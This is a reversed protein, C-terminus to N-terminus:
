ESFGKGHNKGGCACECNHGMAFICKANCKKNPNYVGRVIKATRLRGCGRCPVWLEHLQREPLDSYLARGHEDRFCWVRVASGIVKGIARLDTEGAAVSGDFRSSLEPTVLVSTVTSCAPCKKAIFRHEAM